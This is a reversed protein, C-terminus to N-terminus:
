SLLISQLLSIALPAILSTTLPAFLAGVFGGKQLIRKREHLTTKRQVLAAPGGQVSAIKEESKDETTRERKLLQSCM